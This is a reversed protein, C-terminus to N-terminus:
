LGEPTPPCNQRAFFNRRAPTMMRMTYSAQLPFVYEARNNRELLESRISAELPVYNAGRTWNATKVPQLPDVATYSRLDLQALFMRSMVWNAFPVRMPYWFIVRAELRMVDEPSLYRAPDDFTEEETTSIEALLPSARAIWVITGNYGSDLGPVFKNDRRTRFATGLADASDTRAFSPLLVGLAAHTMADCDGHKVSGTRVARFAAYETLVRAQLMLFLQLTGLILFVTLPLTIAAEVAAQGSQSNTPSGWPM